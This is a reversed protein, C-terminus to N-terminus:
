PLSEALAIDFDVPHSYIRMIGQLEAFRRVFDATVEIFRSGTLMSITHLNVKHVRLWEAWEGSVDISAGRVERADIFLHTPGAGALFRQLELMPADGFEGIDTGTIRMVAVPGPFTEISLHCHVGHFQNQSSAKTIVSEL